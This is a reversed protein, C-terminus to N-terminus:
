ESAIVKVIGSASPVGAIHAVMPRLRHPMLAEIREMLLVWGSPRLTRALLGYTLAAGGIMAILVLADRIRGSGPVLRDLSLWPIIAVAALMAPVAFVRVATGFTGGGAKIAVFLLVPGAIVFFAAAAVATGIASGTSAGIVVCVAYALGACLATSFGARFRGQAALLANIPEDLLRFVVGGSLIALVPPLDHWKDADLFVRVFLPGVTGLGICLPAGILVLVRAAQLFAQMQRPPDEGFRNLAPLLVGSFNLTTVRVIQVVLSQAFFYVGVVAPTAFAGLALSDMGSRMWRSVSAGLTFRLDGLLRQWRPPFSRWRRWSLRSSVCPRASRWWALTTLPEIILMSLPFSLAGCGLWALALTLLSTALANVLMLGYNMRFRMDAVLVAMPVICLSRITPLPSALQLLHTLQVDDYFRGIPIALAFLGASGILGLLLGLGFASPLWKHLNSRKRLLVENFGIQQMLMAFSLLAFAKAYSGYDPKSLFYTLAAQVFLAVLQYFLAGGVGWVVGDSLRERLSAAAAPQAGRSNV